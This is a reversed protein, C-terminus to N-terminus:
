TYQCLQAIPTAYSYTGSPYLHMPEAFIHPALKDHFINAPIEEVENILHFVGHNRLLGKM